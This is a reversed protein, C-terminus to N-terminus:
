RDLMCIDSLVPFQTVDAKLLGIKITYDDIKEVADWDFSQFSFYRATNNMVYDWTFLVDDANFDSGNSFKVDHRLHLIYETDSITEM